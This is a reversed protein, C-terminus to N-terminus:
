HAFQLRLYFRETEARLQFYEDQLVIFTDLCPTQWLKYGASTMVNRLDVTLMSIAWLLTLLVFCSRFPLKRQIILDNNPNKLNVVKIEKRYDPTVKRPVFQLQLDFSQECGCLWAHSLATTLKNNKGRSWWATVVIVEIFHISSLVCRFRTQLYSFPFTTASQTVSAVTAIVCSRLFVVCENLSLHICM